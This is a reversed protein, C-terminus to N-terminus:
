DLISCENDEYNEITTQIKVNPLVVEGDGSTFTGDELVAAGLISSPLYIGLQNHNEYWRMAMPGSREDKLSSHWRVHGYVIQGNQAKAAEGHTDMQWYQKTSGLSQLFSFSAYKRCLIIARERFESLSVSQIQAEKRELYSSSARKRRELQEATPNTYYRYMHTIPDDPAAGNQADSTQPSNDEVSAFPDSKGGNITVLRKLANAVREPSINNSYIYLYFSDSKSRHTQSYSSPLEHFINKSTLISELAKPYWTLKRADDMSRINDYSFIGRQEIVTQGREVYIESAVVQENIQSFNICDTLCSFGVSLKGASISQLDIQKIDIEYRSLNFTIAIGDTIGRRFYRPGYILSGTVQNVFIREGDTSFPMAFLETSTNELDRLNVTLPSRKEIDGLQKSQKGYKNFYTITEDLSPGDTSASVPYIGALLTCILFTIVNNLKKM